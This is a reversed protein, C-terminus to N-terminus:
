HIHFLFKGRLGAIKAEVDMSSKKHQKVGPKSKSMASGKPPATDTEQRRM